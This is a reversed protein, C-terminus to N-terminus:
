LLIISGTYVKFYILICTQIEHKFTKKQDKPYTIFLRSVQLRHFYSTPELHTDKGRSALMTGVM